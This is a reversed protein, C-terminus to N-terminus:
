QGGNLGGLMGGLAQLASSDSVVNTPKNITVPKNIDTLILTGQIGGGTGGGTAGGVKADIGIEHPLNDSGIGVTATAKGLSTALDAVNGIGPISAGKAGNANVSNKALAGLDITMSYFDLSEGNVSKSAIQKVNTVYQNLSNILNQISKPDIAGSSPDKKNSEFAKDGLQVYNKGDVAILGITQDFGAVNVKLEIDFAGGGKAETDFPGGGTLKFSGPLSGMAITASIASKGSKITSANKLATEVRQQPPVNSSSSKSGGCGAAVLAAALVLVAALAPWARFRSFTSRM